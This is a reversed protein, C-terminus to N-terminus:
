GGLRARWWFWGFGVALVAHLVTNPVIGGLATITGARYAWLEIPFFAAQILANVGLYARMTPSDPHGRVWLGLCGLAVLLVGVQRVWVMTAPEAAVGKGALLRAPAATALLGVLLAITSSVTLFITRSM